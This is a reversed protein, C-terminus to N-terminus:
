STARIGFADQLVVVLSSLVLEIHMSCTYQVPWPWLSGWAGPAVEVILTIRSVYEANATDRSPWTSQDGQPTISSSSGGGDGNRSSSANATSSSSSSSGGPITSAGQCLTSVGAGLGPKSSSSSSHARGSNHSSEEEACLQEDEVWELLLGPLLLLEVFARASLGHRQAMDMTLQEKVQLAAAADVMSYRLVNVCSGASAGVKGLESLVRLVGSGAPSHLFASREHGPVGQLQQVLLVLLPEVVQKMWASVQPDAM